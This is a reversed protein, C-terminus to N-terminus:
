SMFHYWVMKLISRLACPVLNTKQNKHVLNQTNTFCRNCVYIQLKFNSKNMVLIVYQYCVPKTFCSSIQKFFFVQCVISM